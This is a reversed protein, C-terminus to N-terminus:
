NQSLIYDVDELLLVILWVRPSELNSALPSPEGIWM